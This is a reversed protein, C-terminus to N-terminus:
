LYKKIRRLHRESYEHGFFGRYRSVLNHKKVGQSLMQKMRSKIVSHQNDAEQKRISNGKEIGGLVKRGADLYKDIAKFQLEKARVGINFIDLGLSNADASSFSPSNVAEKVAMVDRLLDLAPWDDISISYSFHQELGIDSAHEYVSQIGEDALRERCEQELDTLVGDLGADLTHQYERAVERTFDEDNERSICAEDMLERLVRFKDTSDSHENLTFRFLGPLKNM